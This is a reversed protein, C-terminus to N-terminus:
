NPYAYGSSPTRSVFGNRDATITLTYRGHNDLPSTVNRLPVTHFDLTVYFTVTSRARDIIAYNSIVTIYGNFSFPDEFSLLAATPNSASVIIDNEPDVVYNGTVKVVAEKYAYGNDYMCAFTAHVSKNISSRDSSEDNTLVQEANAYAGPILM